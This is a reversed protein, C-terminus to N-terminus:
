VTYVRTRHRQGTLPLNTRHNGCRGASQRRGIGDAGRDPHISPIPSPAIGPFPPGSVHDSEIEALDGSQPRRDRRDPPAPVKSPMNRVPIRTTSRVQIGPRGRLLYRKRQPFHSSCRSGGEGDICSQWKWSRHPVRSETRARDEVFKGEGISGRQQQGDLFPQRRVALHDPVPPNGRADPYGQRNPCHGEPRRLIPTHGDGLEM